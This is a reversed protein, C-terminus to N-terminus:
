DWISLEASLFACIGPVEGRKYYALHENYIELFLINKCYEEGDGKKKGM